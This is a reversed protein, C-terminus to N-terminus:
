KTLRTRALADQYPGLASRERSLEVARSHALDMGSLLPLRRELEPAREHLLGFLSAAAWVVLLGKAFGVLAGGVKDVAGTVTGLHDHALTGLAHAFIECVAFLAVACAATAVPASLGALPGVRVGVPGALLRAAVIGGILGGLGFLQRLLGRFLGFLVFALAIVACARDFTM